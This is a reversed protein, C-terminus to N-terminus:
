WPKMTKLVKYYLTCKSGQIHHVPRYETINHVLFDHLHNYMEQKHILKLCTPKTELSTHATVFAYEKMRVTLPFPNIKQKLKTGAYEKKRIKILYNM